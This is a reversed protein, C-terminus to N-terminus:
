CSQGDVQKEALYWYDDPDGDFGDQEALLYAIEEIMQRRRERQVIDGNRARRAAAAPPVRQGRQKKM